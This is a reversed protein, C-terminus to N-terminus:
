SKKQNENNVCLYKLLPYWLIIKLYEFVYWLHPCLIMGANWKIINSFLNIVDININKLCYIISSQSYIWSAFIQSLLMVLFSPLAIKVLANKLKYRFSRGNFLFFGMILWFCPVADLLFSKILLRDYVVLDNEIYPLSIHLAIVIFIAVIRVIEINYNIIHSVPKSM